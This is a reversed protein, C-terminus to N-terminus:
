PRRLQILRVVLWILVMLLLSLAIRVTLSIADGSPHWISAAGVATYISHAINDGVLGPVAAAVGIAAAVWTLRRTNDAVQIDAQARLAAIARDAREASSHMAALDANMQAVFLRGRETLPGPNGLRMSASTLNDLERTAERTLRDAEGLTKLLTYQAKSISTIVQSPRPRREDAFAAALTDRLIADTQAHQSAVEPRYTDVYLHDLRRHYQVIRPWEVMVLRGAAPSNEEGANDFFIVARWIRLHLPLRDPLFLVYGTQPLRIAPAQLLAEAALQIDHGRRAVATFLLGTGLDGPTERHVAPDTFRGEFISHILLSTGDQYAFLAVQTKAGTVLPEPHASRIVPQYLDRYRLVGDARSGALQKRWNEAVPGPAIVSLDDICQAVESLAADAGSEAWDLVRIQHVTRRHLRMGLDQAM